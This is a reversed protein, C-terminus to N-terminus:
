KLAIFIDVIMDSMDESNNRYLEFDYTYARDLNMNWIKMWGEGVAKQVNGRVTFKAYKGSPIIIQSMEENLSDSKKVECGIMFNYPKTYDGEYDYYIGMVNPVAKDLIENYINKVNFQNWMEAIDKVAEGNNIIKKSIGVIKKEELTIIEYNM